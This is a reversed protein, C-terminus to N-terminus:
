CGPADETVGPVTTTYAVVSELTFPGQIEGLFSDLAFARADATAVCEVAGSLVLMGSPSQVIGSVWVNFPGDEVASPTSVRGTLQPGSYQAIAVTVDSLGSEPPSVTSWDIWPATVALELSAVAPANPDMSIAVGFDGGPPLRYITCCSAGPFGETGYVDIITGDAAVATLEFGTRILGIGENPNHISVMLKQDFGTSVM